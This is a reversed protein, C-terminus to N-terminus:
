KRELDDAQKELEKAKNELEEAKKNLEESKKDLFNGITDFITKAEYIYNTLEETTLNITQGQKDYSIGDMTIDYNNHFIANRFDVYFIDFITNRLKTNYGIEDCIMGLLRGYTTNENFPIKKNDIIIKLYTKIMELNSSFSWIGVQHIFIQRDNKPLDSKLLLDVTKEFTNTIIKNSSVFNKIKLFYEQFLKSNFKYIEEEVLTELFENVAKKIGDITM